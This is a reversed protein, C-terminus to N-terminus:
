SLCSWLFKNGRDSEPTARCESSSDTRATSEAAELL